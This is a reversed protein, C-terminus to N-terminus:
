GVGHGRNNLTSTRNNGALDLKKNFIIETKENNTSGKQGGGGFINIKPPIDQRTESVNNQLFSKSVTQTKWGFLGSKLKTWVKKAPPLKERKRGVPINQKVQIVNRVSPIDTKPKNNDSYGSKDPCEHTKRSLLEFTHILDKVPSRSFKKIEYQTEVKLSNMQPEQKWGGPIKELEERSRKKNQLNKREEPIIDEKQRAKWGEALKIRVMETCWWGPCATSYGCDHNAKVEAMVKDIIDNSVDMAELRDKELKKRYGAEIVPQVVKEVLWEKAWRLRAAHIKMGKWKIELRRKNELREEKLIENEIRRVNEHEKKAFMKKITEQRRGQHKRGEPVEDEVIRGEPNTEYDPKSLDDPSLVPSPQSLHGSVKKGQDEPGGETFKSKLIKTKNTKNNKKTAYISKQLNKTKINAGQGMTIGDVHEHGSSIRGDIHEHGSDIRGEPTPDEPETELQHEEQSGGDRQVLKRERSSIMERLQDGLDSMFKGTKKSQSISELILERCLLEAESWTRIM